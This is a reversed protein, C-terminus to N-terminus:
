GKRWGAVCAENARMWTRTAECPTKKEVNVLWDMETVGDLGVLCALVVQTAIM